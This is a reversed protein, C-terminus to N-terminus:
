QWRGSLTQIPANEVENM